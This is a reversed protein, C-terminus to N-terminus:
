MFEHLFSNVTGEPTEELPQGVCLPPVILLEPEKIETHVDTASPYSLNCHEHHGMVSVM